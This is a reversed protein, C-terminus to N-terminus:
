NMSPAPTMLKERRMGASAAGEGCSAASAPPARQTPNILHITAIIENGGPMNRVVINAEGPLYKQLFRAILRGTADNEGGPDSSILMTLTKNKLSVQTQAAAGM